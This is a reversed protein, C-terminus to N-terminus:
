PDPFGESHYLFICFLDILEALLCFFFSFFSFSVLIRSYVFPLEMLFELLILIENLVISLMFPVLIHPFWLRGIFCSGKGRYTISVASHNWPRGFKQSTILLCIHFSCRFPFLFEKTHTLLILLIPYSSQMINDVKGSAVVRSFFFDFEM